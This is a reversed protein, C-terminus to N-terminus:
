SPSRRTVSPWSASFTKMSSTVCRSKSVTSRRLPLRALSLSIQEHQALDLYVRFLARLANRELDHTEAFAVDLRDLLVWVRYGVSALASNALGLLEDVSAYGKSRLESTPESPTIRGAIGAPFGSNPELKLEFEAASPNLWRKAYDRVARFIRALDIEDQLLGQERLRKYLEDAHKGKISFDSMRQALLTAIYLKWLGVFEIESTPPEAVLEKFVPTGRPREGTVLLIGTDFLDDSKATLLSYIASKGAGKHGRIIDVEGNFIRLWQDTEVFYNALDGTEEEAVQAGFSLKRLLALREM